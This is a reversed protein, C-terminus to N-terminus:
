IVIYVDYRTNKSQIYTHPKFQSSLAAANKPRKVVVRQKTRQLALDLLEVSDQDDGVVQRIFRMEKKVLASKQRHPYMPDLYIVDPYDELYQLYDQASQHILQMNRWIDILEVHQNLRQLGDSLLAALVPSRELMIVRCGLVALIFADCGLGATADIVQLYKHKKLGIARALPQNRGCSHERRYALRGQVFDIYVGQTKQNSSQLALYQTSLNLYFPTTPVTDVISLKFQAALSRAQALLSAQSCYLPIHNM